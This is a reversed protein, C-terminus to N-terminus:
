VHERGRPARLGLDLGETPLSLPCASFGCIKLYSVGRSDGGDADLIRQVPGRLGM